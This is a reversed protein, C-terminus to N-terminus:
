KKKNWADKLTVSRNYIIRGDRSEPDQKFFGVREFQFYTDPMLAGLAPEVLAKGVILSDPNILPVPDDYSGPDTVSFLRDYMRVDVERASEGHVWHITGKVKRGSQDQGSRTKPDYRVYVKTVRGDADLTMGEFDVIFGYKLRVSGGPVLRFFGEPPESEFDSRDIYLERGFPIVRSGLEPRRPHHPVDLELPHQDWNTVVVKLPDLVAMAKHARGELDDRISGELVQFEIINPKRTVGIRECFLRIGEPSYGRRRMGAITPMRPDDWGSVHGNQVLTNLKRKSTVTGELELRSFETQKPRSPVPLRKLLWEYLPRHDEFELTCLSHTIGEIADSQGHAYDYTPYVCWQDGARPHSTHRIRYLAPDRLNINPAAMSIKARLVAAGEPLEGDRMKLFLAENEDAPRDRYASDVGPETLTGRNARMEEASQEDVYADGNRILHLAWEFLQDFYDATHCLDSWEFGLWRVDEEIADIYEQSEKEPNTDDFRLNCRGSFEEALGFNLCISKAHGVHLYGNPEPPFRTVIKEVQGQKIQDSIKTRM